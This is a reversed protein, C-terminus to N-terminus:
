RIRKQRAKDVLDRLFGSFGERLRARTDKSNGGGEVYVRIESVM